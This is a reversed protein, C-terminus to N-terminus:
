VYAEALPGKIDVPLYEALDPPCAGGGEHVLGGVEKGVVLAALDKLLAVVVYM